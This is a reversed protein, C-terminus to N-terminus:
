RAPRARNLKTAGNTKASWIMRANWSLANPFLPVSSKVVALQLLLTVPLTKAAPFNASRAKLWLKLLSNPFCFM